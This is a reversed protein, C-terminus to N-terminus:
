TAGISLKRGPHRVVHVEVLGQDSTNALMTGGNGVLYHVM